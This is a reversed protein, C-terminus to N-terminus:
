EKPDICSNERQVTIAVTGEAKGYNRLYNGRSEEISVGPHVLVAGQYEKLIGLFKKEHDNEPTLNFQITDKTVFMTFQM